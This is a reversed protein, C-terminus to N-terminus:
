KKFINVKLKLENVEFEDWNSLNQVFIISEALVENSIYEFFANVFEEAEKNEAIEICIKDTVNYQQDKRYNQIKNVLERANGEQILQSSLSIDLALTVGNESAVLFGPMDSTLIEVEDAQIKHNLVVAEGSKEFDLIDEQQWAAIVKAVSAMDKGLKAGLLKFNPKASKEFLGSDVSVFEIEKINVESKIIEQVLELDLKQREQIIPIMVKQLPQRVKIQEKKRLSLIMSCVDQALTVRRELDIDIWLEEAEQWLTLHVSPEIKNNLPAILDLYLRESYMPAFSSMLQSLSFLCNYLTEYAANKDASVDNKWFRRRCLRVYWNSLNRDVFEEIARAANTPEYQELCTNVEKKLSQLKSLIWLDLENNNDKVKQLNFDPVFGDINAYLTFFSYTNYLTGFLKRRVEDLGKLDFKLNDWPQANSIIYWRVVDAGYQNLTEFPDIVNGKRKSMKEGNKDLVLGNSIVSKYAPQDFLMTSIAHLTYFWGRTQDVGEAIFDAPYKKSELFDNANKANIGWQAYPMSGSDFWVDIVDLERILIQDGDILTVHDIYPKHLDFADTQHKDVFQQNSLIQSESLLGSTNAKHIELILEEVGGICKIVSYNENRWLPLPIGWYRSRSLNWDQLNELWQGFRGTGTSEPKWNIKKNNAILSEKVATTRIFWSDLPYYMIPKDTRWCHPYSHVYKQVNFALGRTKLDIAIDIDPSKYEAEDRYNKIYRGTLFGMGEIFRGERNVMFQKQGYNDILVPEGIGNEHAVKRDDAGFTPAIHVIGTGDTTTVFDGSIVEFCKGDINEKLNSEFPLLQHYSIGTLEKGFTTGLIKYSINKDDWELISEANKENEKKFWKPLLDKALILNQPNKTYPNFTEVLVYEIKPGVCLATNSPLTWPTTTWALIHAAELNTQFIANVKSVDEVQFCAVITTDTVDKYTGPQNLEHSSLGTGAAPSFPQITLGKYLLNKNYIQQIIWWVSEIYENQFTIYPTDLDLWYGMKITLDDWKQKYEFVTERCKKNYDEVSIKTGIDEKTIGLDQEVRLEIPLGHTDWGGKREVQFGKLTKYRCFIDKITRGVVHHIGPMGNASPPGEYFVFPAGQSRSSISKKFIDNEKWYNLIDQDIQPLNLSKHQPYNM